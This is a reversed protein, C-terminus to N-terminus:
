CDFHQLFSFNCFIMSSLWEHVLGVSIKRRISAPQPLLAMFMSLTFVIGAFLHTILFFFSMVFLSSVIFFLLDLCKSLYFIASVFTCIFHFTFASFLALINFSNVIQIFIFPVSNMAALHVRMVIYSRYRFGVKCKVRRMLVRQFLREFARKLLLQAIM